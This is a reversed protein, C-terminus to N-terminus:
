AELRCAVGKIRTFHLLKSRSNGFLAFKRLAPVEQLAFHRFRLTRSACRRKTIAGNPMEGISRRACTAPPNTVEAPQRVSLSFTRLMIPAQCATIPSSHVTFPLFCEAPPQVRYMRPVAYVTLQVAHITLLVVHVTSPVVNFAIPSVGGGLPM